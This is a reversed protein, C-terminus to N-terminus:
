LYNDFVMTLNSFTSQMQVYNQLKKNKHEKTIIIAILVFSSHGMQQIPSIAM